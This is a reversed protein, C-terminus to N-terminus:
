KRCENAFEWVSFLCKTLELNGSLQSLCFFRIALIFLVRFGLFGCAFVV